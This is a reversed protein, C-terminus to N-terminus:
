KGIDKGILIVFLDVAERSDIPDSEISEKLVRSILPLTNM